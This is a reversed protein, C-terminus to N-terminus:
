SIEIHLKFELKSNDQNKTIEVISITKVWNLNELVKTWDHLSHIKNTSGSIILSKNDFGIPKDEKIKNSIPSFALQTLQIEGPCNKAVINLLPYKLTINKRTNSQIIYKNAAILQNIQDLQEQQIISNQSQSTQDDLSYETLKEALFFLGFLLMLILSGKTLVSKFGSFYLADINARNVLTPTNRFLIEKSTQIDNCLTIQSIRIGNIPLEKILGDYKFHPLFLALGLQDSLPYASVIVNKPNYNPFQLQIDKEIEGTTSSFQKQLITQGYIILHVFPTKQIKNFISKNSEFKSLIDQPTNDRWPREPKEFNYHLVFENSSKRTIFKAIKLLWDM